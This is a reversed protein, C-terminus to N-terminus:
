ATLPSLSTFLSGLYMQSLSLRNLFSAKWLGLSSYEGGWDLCNRRRIIETIIVGLNLSLTPASGRNPRRSPWQERFAVEDCAESAKPM